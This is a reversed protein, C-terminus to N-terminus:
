EQHDLGSFLRLRVPELGSAIQDFERRTRKLAATYAFPFLEGRGAHDLNMWAHSDRPLLRLALPELLPVFSLPELLYAKGSALEPSQLIEPDLCDIVQASIEGPHLGNKNVWLQVYNSHAYFDQVAHTLRGFAQRAQRVQARDPEARAGILAGILQRQSEVYADARAFQSSDYHYEPHGLQGFLGDQRINAKTMERVALPSCKEQLAENMLRVHYRIRL